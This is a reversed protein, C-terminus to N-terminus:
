GVNEIAKWGYGCTTKLRHKVVFSIYRRDVGTKREAESFSKFTDIVKNTKLCIQAVMQKSNAGKERKPNTKYFHIVNQQHTVWELNEANNKYKNGNKHNVQPLNDPNPVFREAVLRHITFYKQKGDKYLGVRLYQSGNLSPKLIIGKRLSKVRGQDSVQYLGEFDKIDEWVENM